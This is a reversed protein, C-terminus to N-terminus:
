QVSSVLRGWVRRGLNGAGERVLQPVRTAARKGGAIRDPQEKWWWFGLDGVRALDRRENMLDGNEYSRWEGRPKAEM